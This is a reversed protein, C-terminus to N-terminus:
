LGAIALRAVDVLQTETLRLNTVEVYFDGKYAAIGPKAVIAGDGIGSIPKPADAPAMRREFEGLKEKADTIM